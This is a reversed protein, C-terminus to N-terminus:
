AKGACAFAAAGDLQRGAAHNGARRRGFLRNVPYATGPLTTMLSVACFVGTYTLM